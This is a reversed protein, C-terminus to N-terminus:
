QTHISKRLCRNQLPYLLHSLIMDVEMDHAGINLGSENFATRTGIFGPLHSISVFAHGNTPKYFYLGAPLASHNYLDLNRSRLLSADPSKVVVSTCAVDIIIPALINLVLLVDYDIDSGASLGQLEERYEPPIFEEVEKAREKLLNEGYSTGWSKKKVTYLLDRVWDRIEDRLLAGRTISDESHKFSNMNERLPGYYNDWWAKSPLRHIGLIEFGLSNARNSNESETGITPYAKQWYVRVTEPVESTFYSMESIVAVGNAAM